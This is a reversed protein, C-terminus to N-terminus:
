VSYCSRIHFSSVMHVHTTYLSDLGYWDMLSLRVKWVLMYLQECYLSKYQVHTEQM